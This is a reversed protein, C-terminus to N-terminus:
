RAQFKRKCYPCYVTKSVLPDGHKGLVKKMLSKGAYSGGRIGTMKGVFTGLLPGVDRGLEEVFGVSDRLVKAITYDKILKGCHPCRLYDAM